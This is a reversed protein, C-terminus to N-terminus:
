ESITIIEIFVKHLIIHIICRQDWEGKAVYHLRIQNYSLFCLIKIQSPHLSYPENLAFSGRINYYKYALNKFFHGKAVYHPRFWNHKM